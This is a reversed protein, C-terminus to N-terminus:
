KQHLPILYPNDLSYTIIPINKPSRQYDGLFGNQKQLFGIKRIVTLSAKNEPHVVSKLHPIRIEKFAHELACRAAETAFGKGWLKEEIGWGIELFGVPEFVGIGCFGVFNNKNQDEVVWRCYGVERFSKQQKHIFSLIRKNSWSKGQNVYRMVQPNKALRCILPFDLPKWPRLILRETALFFSDTM